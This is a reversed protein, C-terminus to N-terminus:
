NHNNYDILLLIASKNYNKIKNCSEKRINILNEKM